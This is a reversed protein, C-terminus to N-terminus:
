EHSNRKKGRKYDEVVSAFHRCAAKRVDHSQQYMRRRHEADIEDAINILVDHDIAPIIGREHLFDAYERLDDSIPPRSM